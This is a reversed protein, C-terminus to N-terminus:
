LGAASGGDDGKMGLVRVGPTGLLGRDFSVLEGGLGNAQGVILYDSLDAEGQAWRAVAERVLEPEALLFPPADCIASLTAVLDARSVRYRARLVWATEVLTITPLLVPEGARQAAEILGRAIAAQAPDDGVLFRVLVNTDLAIM